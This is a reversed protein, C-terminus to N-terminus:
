LLLLAQIIWTFFSFDAKEFTFLSVYVCVCVCLTPLEPANKQKETHWFSRGVCRWKSNDQCRCSKHPVSCLMQKM